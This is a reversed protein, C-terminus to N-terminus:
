NPPCTKVADKLRSHLTRVDSRSDWIKRHRDRWKDINELASTARPMCALRCVGQRLQPDTLNGVKSIPRDPCSYVSRLWIEIVEPLFYKVDKKILFDHIAQDEGVWDLAQILYTFQLNREERLASQSTDLKEIDELVKKRLSVELRVYRKWGEIDGLDHLKKAARRQMHTVDKLLQVTRTPFGQHFRALNGARYTEDACDAVDLPEEKNNKAIYDLLEILRRNDDPNRKDPCAQANSGLAILMAVVFIAFKKMNASVGVQSFGSLLRVHRLAKRWRHIPM